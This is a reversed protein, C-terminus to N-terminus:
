TILKKGLCQMEAKIAGLASCEELFSRLEQLVNPVRKMIGATSQSLEV